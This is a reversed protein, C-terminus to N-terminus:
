GPQFSWLKIIFDGVDTPYPTSLMWKGLLGSLGGTALINQSKSWAVSRIGDAPFPLDFVSLEDPDPHAAFSTILHREHVNWLFLFGDPAAVVLYASDPSFALAQSQIGEKWRWLRGVHPELHGLDQQSGVHYLRVRQFSKGAVLTALLTGDPSFALSEEFDARITDLYVTELSASEFLWLHAQNSSTPLVLCSGDVSVTPRGPRSFDGLADFTFVSQKRALDIISFCGSSDMTILAKGDTSFTLFTPHLPLRELCRWTTCEWLAIGEDIVALASGDPSFAMDSGPLRQVRVQSDIDWIWIEDLADQVSALLSGDDSFRLCTIEASHGRLVGTLRFPTSQSLFQEM